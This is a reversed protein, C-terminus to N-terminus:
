AGFKGQSYFTLSLYMCWAVGICNAYLIRMDGSLYRFAIWNALPWLAWNAQLTPWLKEQVVFLTHQPTGKACEIFAFLALNALPAFALQDAALKALVARTSKPAHPLVAADLFRHWVHGSPGGILLGYSAMRMNRALDFPEGSVIQALGDGLMGGVFCTM